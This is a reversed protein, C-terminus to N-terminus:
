RMVETVLRNYADVEVLLAGDVGIPHEGFANKIEAIIKEQKAKLEEIRNKQDLILDGAWEAIEWIDAGDGCPEGLMIHTNLLQNSM